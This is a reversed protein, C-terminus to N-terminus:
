CNASFAPPGYKVEPGPNDATTVQGAPIQLGFGTLTSHFQEGLPVVQSTIGGEADALSVALVDGGPLDASAVSLSVWRDYVADPAFDLRVRAAKSAVGLQHPGGTTVNIPGNGTQLEILRLDPRGNLNAPIWIMQQWTWRGTDEYEYLDGTVQATITFAPLPPVAIGVQCPAAAPAISLAAAPRPAGRWSPLTVAIVAIVIVGVVAVTAVVRKPNDLWGGQDVPTPPQDLDVEISM